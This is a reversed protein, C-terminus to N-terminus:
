GGRSARPAHDPSPTCAPCIASSGSHPPLKGCGLCLHPEGRAWKAHEESRRIWKAHDDAERQKLWAENDARRIESARDRMTEAAVLFLLGPLALVFGPLGLICGTVGLVWKWFTLAQPSLRM